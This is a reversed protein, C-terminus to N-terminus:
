KQKIWGSLDRLTYRVVPMHITVPGLSKQM